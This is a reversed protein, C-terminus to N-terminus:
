HTLGVRATLPKSPIEGVPWGTTSSSTRGRLGRGVVKAEPSIPSLRRNGVSAETTIKRHMSSADMRPVSRDIGSMRYGTEFMSRDMAFMRRGTELISRDMESLWRDIESISRDM